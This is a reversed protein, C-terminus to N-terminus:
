EPLKPDRQQEAPHAEKDATGALGILRDFEDTAVGTRAYELFENEMAATDTGAMERAIRAKAKSQQRLDRMEQLERSSRDEGIGVLMSNIEEEERATIVDAVTANAEQRIKEVDRLLSQLQIKHGAVTKSIEGVDAELEAVHGEKERLTSTFDNFAALCKVYEPDAKIQDMSQGTAQMRAVLQKAKAAAGDRLQNLKVVDGSLEGIRAKKTEEQAIMRAVADKYQNIRSRKEQVVRDYTAQIVQPNRSLDQRASDVKGTFLYGISRFLRALAQFM